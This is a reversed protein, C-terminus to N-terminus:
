NTCFNKLFCFSFIWLAWHGSSPTVIDWAKSLSTVWKEPDGSRVVHVRASALNGVSPQCSYTGSDAMTSRQLLLFSSTTSGKETIQSVGGRPSDYSIEKQNHYWFIFQPPEPSDRVLCTLNMTVGEQVYIDDGGLIETVPETVSLHVVHSMVPTTSIQCEYLGSDSKQVPEIQLLYNESLVKHIARFREDSTYTYRGATLLHTDKHRIWSVTRNGVGRVRCNLHATKGLIASVNASDQFVFQAIPQHLPFSTQASNRHPLDYISNMQFTGGCCLPFMVLCITSLVSIAPLGGTSREMTSASCQKEYIRKLKKSVWDSQLASNTLQQAEFM